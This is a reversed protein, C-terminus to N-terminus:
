AVRGHEAWGTEGTCWLRLDLLLDIEKRYEPLLKAFRPHTRHIRDVISGLERDIAPVDWQAPKRDEDGMLGKIDM